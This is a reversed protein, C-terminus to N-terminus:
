KGIPDQGPEEPADKLDNAILENLENARNQMEIYLEQALKQASQNNPRKQIRKRVLALKRFDNALELVDDHLPEDASAVLPELYDIKERAAEHTKELGEIDPKEFQSALERKLREILPLLEYRLATANLQIPRNGSGQLLLISASLHEPALEAIQELGSRVNHDAALQSVNNHTALSQIASFIRSAKLLGEDSRKTGAAVADKINSVAIVEWRIFFDPEEYVLIQKMLEVSDISVILRGGNQVERLKALQQWFDDPEIVKGTRTINALLCLDERLPKNALSAELMLALPSVLAQQMRMSFGGDPFSISGHFYPANAQRYKILAPMLENLLGFPAGTTKLSFFYKQAEEAKPPGLKLAMSALKATAVNEQKPDSNLLTELNENKEQVIIPLFISQEALHFHPASKQVPTNKQPPPPTITKKPKDEPLKKETAQYAELSSIAGRWDAKDPQNATHTGLPKLADGIHLALRNAQKGAQPNSFLKQYNRVSAISDNIQSEPASPPVKGAVLAKSIEHSRHNQPDLQMALLLLRATAQQNAASADHKRLAITILSKGIQQTSHQPLPINELEFLEINENPEIYKAASSAGPFLALIVFAIM